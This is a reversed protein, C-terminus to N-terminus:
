MVFLTPTFTYHLYLLQLFPRFSEVVPLLLLFDQVARGFKCCKMQRSLPVSSGSRIALSCCLHLASSLVLVVSSASCSAFAIASTSTLSLSCAFFDCRHSITTCSTSAFSAVCEPDTTFTVSSSCSSSSIRFAYLEVCSHTLLPSDFM